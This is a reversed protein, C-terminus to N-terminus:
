LNVDLVIHIRDTIGNNKIMHYYKTNNMEFICGEKFHIENKPHRLNKRFYFYTDKNTFVVLHYRHSKKFATGEDVHEKVKSNKNLKLLLLREIKKEDVHLKDKFINLTTDYINELYTPISDINYYKDVLDIDNKKKKQKNGLIGIKYTQGHFKRVGTNESNENNFWDTSKIDLIYQQLKKIHNIHCYDYIIYPESINKKPM